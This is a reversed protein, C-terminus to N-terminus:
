YHYSDEPRKRAPGEATETTTTSPEPVSRHPATTAATKAATSSGEPGSRASTTTSTEKTGTFSSAPASRASATTKTIETVTSSPESTSSVPAKTVPESPEEPNSSSGYDASTLPTLAGGNKFPKPVIQEKNKSGGCTAGEISCIGLDDAGSLCYGPENRISKGPTFVVEDCTASLTGGSIEIYSCSWWDADLFGYWVMGFVYTGDPICSPVTITKGYQMGDKDSGCEGACPRMGIDWCSYDIAFKEHAGKDLRKNVPVIALRQFGDRYFLSCPKLSIFPHWNSAFVHCAGTNSFLIYLLWHTVYRHNNRLWEVEVEQGRKWTEAPNEETVDTATRNAVKDSRCPGECSVRRTEGEACYWSIDSKPKTFKSHADAISFLGLAMAFGAFRLLAM